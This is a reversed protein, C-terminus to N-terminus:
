DGHRRDEERAVALGVPVPFAAELAPGVRRQVLGPASLCALERSPQGGIGKVGDVRAVQPPRVLSGTITAFGCPTGTTTSRPRRSTSTPEQDPSVRASISSRKGPCSRWSPSVRSCCLARTTAASSRIASPVAAFPDEHDGVTAGQTSQPPMGADVELAPQLVARHELQM